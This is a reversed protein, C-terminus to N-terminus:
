MTKYRVISGAIVAIGSLIGLLSALLIWGAVLASIDDSYQKWTECVPFCTANELYFDPSCTVNSTPFATNETNSSVAGKIFIAYFYM